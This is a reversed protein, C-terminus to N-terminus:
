KEVTKCHSFVSDHLQKPTMSQLDAAGYVQAVVETRRSYYDSDTDTPRKLGNPMGVAAAAADEPIGQERRRGAASADNAWFACPRILKGTRGNFANGVIEQIGEPPAASVYLSTGILCAFVGIKRM